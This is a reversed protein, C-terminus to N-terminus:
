EKALIEWTDVDDSEDKSEDATPSPAPLPPSAVSDVVVVDASSEPDEDLATVSPDATSVAALAAFPSSSLPALVPSTRDIAPSTKREEVPRSDVSSTVPTASPTTSAGDRRWSSPGVGRQASNNSNNNNRSLLSADLASWKNGSQNFSNSASSSSASPRGVVVVNKATAAAVSGGRAWANSAGAGRRRSTPVFFEGEAEADDLKDSETLGSSVSSADDWADRVKTPALSPATTEPGFTSSPPSGPKTLTRPAASLM